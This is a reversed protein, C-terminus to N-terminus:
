PAPRNIWVWWHPRSLRVNGAGLNGDDIMADVMQAEADSVTSNILVMAVGPQGSLNHSYWTGGYPSTGSHATPGGEAHQIFQELGPFVLPWTVNRVPEGYAFYYQQVARSFVKFQGAMRSVRARQSYDFYRPVAVAALVALVVIVAILEVLTFARWRWAGRRARRSPNVADSPTM